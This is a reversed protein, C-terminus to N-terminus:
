VAWNRQVIERCFERDEGNLKNLYGIEFAFRIDGFDFLKRGVNVLSRTSMTTRIEQRKFAERILSATRALLELTEFDRPDIVGLKKKLIEVEIEPKPYDIYLASKYRDLSAFNQPQTGNYLGTDDGQGVTNGTAIVRFNPHPHITEGTETIMLSGGELVPQLIATIGPSAFDFEDLILLAGERMARPLIGYDFVSERNRIRDQGIFDQRTIDNDFNVRYFPLNLRIAVQTPCSSKGSGTPGTLLLLEKPTNLTYLVVGLFLPDFHYHPDFEHVPTTKHPTAYGKVVQQAGFPKVGFTAEIDYDIMYNRMVAALKGLKAEAAESMIRAEPFANKYDSLTMAHAKALHLEIVHCEHGCLECAIKECGLAVSRLAEM